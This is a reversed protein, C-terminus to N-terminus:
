NLVATGLITLFLAQVAALCKDSPVNLLIRVRGARHNRDRQRRCRASMLTCGAIGPQEILEDTELARREVLPDAAIRLAVEVQIRRFTEYKSGKVLARRSPTSALQHLEVGVVGRNKAAM